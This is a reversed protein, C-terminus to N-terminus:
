TLIWRFNSDTTYSHLLRWQCFWRYLNGLFTAVRDSSGSTNFYDHVKTAILASVLMSKDIGVVDMLIVNTDILAVM